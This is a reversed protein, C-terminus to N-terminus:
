RLLIRFLDWTDEAVVNPMRATHPSGVRQGVLMEDDAFVISEPIPGTDTANRYRALTKLRETRSKV